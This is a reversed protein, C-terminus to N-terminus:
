LLLLLVCSAVLLCFHYKVRRNARTSRENDYSSRGLAANTHVKLLDYARRADRQVEVPLTLITTEIESRSPKTMPIHTEGGWRDPYVKRLEVRLLDLMNTYHAAWQKKVM